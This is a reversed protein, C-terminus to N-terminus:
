FVFPIVSYKVKQKYQTFYKGYKLQCREEDRFSRHFLLITLFIFYFYPLIHDFGAPCSWLFAASLEPFYNFHRALGWYGSTLLLSEHQPKKGWINEEGNTERFRLRQRDTDYNIYIAALGAVFIFAAVAPQLQYAHKVLFQNEITYLGPVWVTVGWYIYFGFRDHMIDISNFYGHEWLFFKFIYITQLAVSIAMSNSLFGYMDYQKYAFSWLIVIWGIMSVRCNFYQKLYYGFIRPHLETGWFMDRLFSGSSGSDASSPLYLGKYYLVFCVALSFFSMFTLIEGYNDYVSSPNFWKFHVGGIYWLVLTLVYCIPGNLKYEPRLGAPTVGAKWWRGPIAVLLVLQLLLFSFIIKVSELTPMKYIHLLFNEKSLIGQLAAVISGDYEDCARFIILVSLPCMTMFTTPMIFDFLIEKATGNKRKPPLSVKTGNSRGAAM